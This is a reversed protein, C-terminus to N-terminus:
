SLDPFIGPPLGQEEYFPQLFSPLQEEDQKLREVPAQMLEDILREVYAREEDQLELSVKFGQIVTQADIDILIGRSRSTASPNGLFVFRVEEEIRFSSDKFLYPRALNERRTMRLWNETDALRQPVESPVYLLRSVIGKRAGAKELAKQIREVTSIVAVGRQSYLRWM